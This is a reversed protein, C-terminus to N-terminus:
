LKYLLDVLKHFPASSTDRFRLCARARAIIALGDDIMAWELAMGVGEGIKFARLVLEFITTHGEGIRKNGDNKKSRKITRARGEKDDKSGRKAINHV